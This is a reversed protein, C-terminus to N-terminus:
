LGVRTSLARCVREILDGLIARRGSQEDFEGNLTEPAALGPDDNISYVEEGNPVEYPRGCPSPVPIPPEADANMFEGQEM